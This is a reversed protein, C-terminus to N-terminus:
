LKFNKRVAKWDVKRNAKIQKRKTKLSKRERWIEILGKLVDRDFLLFWIFKKLEYWLVFPFDMIVNQWYENKYLTILHNKYSNYKVKNDQKNKNNAANKDSYNKIGVSRDHYAVAEEVVYNKLGLSNLRYALDVDEKYSGFSEDFIENNIKIKELTEKKFLCFTGSLGFVQKVEMKKDDWREGTEKEVIRRNGFVQLGLSDVIESFDNPFNWKMLRPSLTATDEQKDAFSILKELCNEALFLDQNIIINYDANSKQLLQNYGSAFGLNKKNKEISYKQSIESCEKELFEVTKDQSGNDLIQLSWNQYTQKKLSDFLYPFYKEGNWTVLSIVVKM